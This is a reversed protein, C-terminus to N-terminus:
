SESEREPAPEPEPARVSVRLCVCVCVCVYVCGSAGSYAHVILALEPVPFMSVRTCVRKM